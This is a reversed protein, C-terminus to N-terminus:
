PVELALTTMVGLHDSPYFGTADANEFCVISETADIAARAPGPEEVFVYDIRRTPNQAAGEMLVIPSTAGSTNADPGHVDAYTDVFGADRLTGIAMTEDTSNMDGTLLRIHEDGNLAMFELVLNLQGVRSLDTGEAELHTNYLDLFYGPQVEVRTWVAVRLGEQLDYVDSEAIPFRSFIGVGEGTLAGIDGWKLHQYQQYAPGGRDAIQALLEYGQDVMIEIEQLGILDPSLRVIEDALLPLRREPMDVDHRLNISMVKLTLPLPDRAEESCAAAALILGAALSVARRM